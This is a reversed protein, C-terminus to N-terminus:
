DCMRQQTQNGYHIMRWTLTLKDRFLLVLDIVLAFEPKVIFFHIRKGSLTLSVLLAISNHMASVDDGGTLFAIYTESTM